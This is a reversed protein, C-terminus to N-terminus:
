IHHNDKCFWLVLLNMWLLSSKRLFTLGLELNSSFLKINDTLLQLKTFFKDLRCQVKKSCGNCVYPAKDLKDCHYSRPKFDPCHSNCHNCLRCMRKCVPAYIECINKKRCDAFLACKNKPENFHNHEHLTRHKKIEKAITTPDKDLQLAISRLSQCSDLGKEIIIRNDMTLHKQNGLISKCM